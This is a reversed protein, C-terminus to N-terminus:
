SYPRFTAWVPTHDSSKEKGRAKRDVGANELRDAALPSMMIHDIRIGHDKQWAGRQYDWFTFAEGIPQVTRLADTYGLHAFRRFTKRTELRYLADDIWDAPDYADEAQPIVNYDGTLIVPKEEALREEAFRHFREMWALKYDYKPGPCPNGNPLYLGGIFFGDIEACIFRAQEDSDDGPLGRMVSTPKSKSLIGVGNFAKQGHTEVHYGLEEIELRPFNDDISKIEQLCVIDPDAEALWELLRPLRAKIGNINFTALKPV